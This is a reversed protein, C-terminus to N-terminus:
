KMVVNNKFVYKMAATHAQDVPLAGTEFIGLNREAGQQLLLNAIEVDNGDAAFYLPTKGEYDQVDLKADHQLLLKVMMLNGSAAAYHLATRGKRDQLNPNAFLQELAFKMIRKHEDKSAIMMLLSKGQKDQYNISQPQVNLDRHMFDREDFKYDNEADYDVSLADDSLSGELMAIDIIPNSDMGMDIIPGNTMTFQGISVCAFLISIQIINKKM